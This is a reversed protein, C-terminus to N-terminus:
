AARRGGGEEHGDMQRDPSLDLAAARGCEHCYLVVTYDGDPDAARVLGDEIGGGDLYAVVEMTGPGCTPCPVDSPDDLYSLALALGEAGSFEPM